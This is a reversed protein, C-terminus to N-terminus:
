SGRHTGTGPNAKAAAAQRRKQSIALAVFLFCMGCGLMVKDSHGDIASVISGLAFPGATVFFLTPVLNKKM